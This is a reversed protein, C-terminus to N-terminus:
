SQEEKLKIIVMTGIAEGNANKKDVIDLDAQRQQLLNNLELRSQTLNVGKSQHALGSGTKNQKSAERGIGNDDIIIEIISDKKIINLSIQGGNGRPVIGHWIANEIFPQIILAPIHISKLDINEDVNISYSFKADFRLAELQLYYRCTEVEDYLSIERKDANNFLTRILKSFTTLYTVGTETKQEQMLAKISNLCNFVFHPNMQARLAKAELELLDKEYKSKLKEEKRVARVRLKVIFFIALALGAIISTWFWWTQWYPPSVIIEMRAEEKSWDGAGVKVRARFLYKGPKLDYLDVRNSSDNDASFAPLEVWNNVDGDLRWEYQTRKAGSIYNSTLYIIIAKQSYKLKLKKLWQPNTLYNTIEINHDDTVGYISPMYTIHLSDPGIWDPNDSLNASYLLDGKIFYFNGTSDMRIDTTNNKSRVFQPDDIFKYSGDQINFIAPLSDKVAVFFDVPSKICFDNVPYIYGTNKQKNTFSFFESTKTLQHYVGMGKELTSFWIDGNSFAEIHTITTKTGPLVSEIEGTIKNYNCLGNGTGVWTIDKTTRSEAFSFVGNANKIEIKKVPLEGKLINMSSDSARRIKYRNTDLSAKNGAGPVIYFEDITTGIYLNNKDDFWLKTIEKPSGGKIPFYFPPIDCAGSEFDKFYTIQNEETSFFKYGDTSEAITKIPKGSFVSKLNKIGYDQNDLGITFAGVNGGTIVAFSFESSSALVIGDKSILIEGYKNQPSQEFVYARFLTKKSQSFVGEYSFFQLLIIAAFFKHLSFLRTKPQM